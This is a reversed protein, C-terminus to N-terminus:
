ININFNKIYISKNKELKKKTYKNQYQSINESYM